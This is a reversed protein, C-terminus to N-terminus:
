DLIKNVIEEDFPTTSEWVKKPEVKVEEEQFTVSKLEQTSQSEITSKVEDEETASFDRALL